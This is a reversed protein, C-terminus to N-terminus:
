SQRIAITQLLSLLLGARGAGRASRRGERNVLENAGLEHASPCIGTGLRGEFFQEAGSQQHAGEDTQREALSTGVVAGQGVTVHLQAGRRCTEEELVQQAEKLAEVGLIRGQCRLDDIGERDGFLAHNLM